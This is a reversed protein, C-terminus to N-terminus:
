NNVRAKQLTKLITQGILTASAPNQGTILNGDVVVKVGWPEDAKEYIGGLSTIADELLFPIEKVKDVLEEEENSFGTFRKGIFISKKSSDVAGVLAATGHCVAAVIKDAQWFQSALKINTPDTPLDMVPGHGGVYFIADYDNVNVDSLKKAHALKAKVTEDNLFKVCVPDEGFAKLSGEDLPPNPGAIAAFDITSHSSLVDYPHAAEPLYWGTQNGTLTKDASSLVFLVSPM